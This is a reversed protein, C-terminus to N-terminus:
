KKRRMLQEIFYELEDIRAVKERIAKEGRRATDAHKHMVRTLRVLSHAASDRTTQLEELTMESAPSTMM